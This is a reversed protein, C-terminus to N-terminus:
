SDGILSLERRNPGIAMPERSYNEQSNKPMSWSRPGNNLTITYDLGRTDIMQVAGFVPHYIAAITGSCVIADEPHWLTNYVVLAEPGVLNDPVVRWFAFESSLGVSLPPDLEYWGPVWAARKMPAMWNNITLRYASTRLADAKRSVPWEVLLFENSDMLWQGSKCSDTGGCTEGGDVRLVGPIDVEIVLDPPPVRRGHYNPQPKYLDRFQMIFTDRRDVLDRTFEAERRAANQAEIEAPVPEEGGLNRVKSFGPLEPPQDPLEQALLEVYGALLIEAADRRSNAFAAGSMNVSSALYSYARGRQLPDRSIELCRTAYKRVREAQKDIGSQAAVHAVEYWIRAQEDKDTFQKALKDARKELEVFREASGHRYQSDFKFLQERLEPSGDAVRELKKPMAPPLEPAPALVVFTSLLSITSILM